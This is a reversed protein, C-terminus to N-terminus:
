YSTNHNAEVRVIARSSFPCRLFPSPVLEGGVLSVTTALVDTTGAILAVTIGVGDPDDVWAGAATVVGCVTALLESWDSLSNLWSVTSHEGKEPVLHVGIIEGFSGVSSLFSVVM